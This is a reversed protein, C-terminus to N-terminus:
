KTVERILQRLAAEPHQDVAKERGAFYRGLFGNLGYRQINAAIWPGLMQVPMEEMLQGNQTPMLMTIGNGVGTEQFGSHQGAVVHSAGKQHSTQEAPIHKVQDVQGAIAGAGVPPLRAVQNDLMQWENANALPFVQVDAEIRNRESRFLAAQAEDKSAAAELRRLEALAQKKQMVDMSRTVAQGVAQGAESLGGDSVHIGSPSFSAGSGSLAFLPHLGAKKADAVKWQIGSQAFEKQALYNMLQQDSASKQAKSGGLLSAGASIAAGLIQGLAM